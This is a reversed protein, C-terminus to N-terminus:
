RLLDPLEYLLKMAESWGAGSFLELVLLLNARRAPDDFVSRHDALYRRVLRVLVDSGLSEFHYGDRKAPGVLLAAVRDFVDEPAAAALYEYLEVLHYATRATGCEGIADLLPGYEELFRRMADASMLGPRDDDTNSRFAGSGFYLQNCAHDLLSDGAKYLRAATAQGAETTDDKQLVVARQLAETSSQVVQLLVERARDQILGDREPADPAFRLFLASRLASVVHWLRGEGEPIDDVWSKIWAQAADRESGVWLHAALYGLAEDLNREKDLDPTDQRSPLRALIQSVLAESRTPDAGAIQFVPGSLFFGLVGKHTETQAIHEMMGWMAPRASEWFVNLSQAIQLRVTPVPDALFPTLRDVLLPDALCFRKALGMLSSAVYVRVDWNSWGMLSSNTDERPEPYPSTSMRDLLSLLDTLAPLGAEGPVFAEDEAVKGVANSVAGWCAHLTEPHAGSGHLDISEVVHLTTVWLRLLRGADSSKDYGKLGDELPRTVSRIEYDPGSEIPAGSRELLRDTIGDAPGSTITFTMFPQNGVLQKESDLEDRLAKMAPTVLDDVAVISLFRGAIARPWRAEEDTAGQMHAIMGDEFQRREDPRRSGYVAALYTIADRSVGRLNLADITSAVPWLLDDAEGRRDAGVGFLRAWVSSTSEGSMAAEICTRFAETPCDRLFTAFDSLVSDNARGRREQDTRWEELTLNDEVIDFTQQGVVFRRQERYDAGGKREFALGIASAEVAHTGAAPDAKLMAPLGQRLRWRAHEYDQRRNSTLPLIRSPQGGLWTKEDPPAERGFLAAFVEVAFGADFPLITLLGEALWPAEEDAHETFRSPDLIRGLLLRSAVPDSGFSKAVFRIGMATLRGMPPVSAWAFGLLDRSAQGFLTFVDPDTLDTKEFLTSLLVSAGDALAREEKGIAVKAVTAWAKAVDASVAGHEAIRMNVFRALRSLAEALTDTRNGDRLLRCLGVIDQPDSVREAVTRLAVSTVVPDTQPAAVINAIMGWTKPRGNADERWVREMAFRLSPSLLLGVAPDETVQSVLHVPDDWDLYFRGAIHDFLVHHGFAIRDGAPVLVGSKLVEDIADHSVDIKRVSLRRRQVMTEVALKAAARLKPSPLREDEYRDILDSQTRVSSITEASVGNAVLEAALSLNFVNRLLERVDPPAREVLTGLERDTQSVERLEAETLRSIHFHRIDHFDAEAYRTSPPAGAMIQRFRRGNRLDFTRISAVISWREGLRAVADEILSEFVAESAGGRSADLADIIFVGPQRGPWAALVDLLPHDLGLETRIEERVSVGSLRDVSLFVTPAADALLAEGLTVLVGTKGAGPDGTVLLSGGEIAAILDPQCERLISTGGSIALRTHRGLRTIEAESLRRVQDIDKDFSPSRTDDLGANRLAAILGKQDSLAGNRMLHRVAVYLADLAADGSEQPGFLRTGVTRAAERWDRGSNDDDFRAIRFLRAMSILDADSVPGFYADNWASRVSKEFVDLAGLQGQNMRSKSGSWEGGYDFHRCASELYDLSGSADSAVALIAASRELDLGSTGTKTAAFMEVLQAITRTLASEPGFSLTPRTKCQVSILGGDALHIEIDDLRAGTEFQLQVPLVTADLGFRQGVPAEGVVHAAFWTGVVAQFAM